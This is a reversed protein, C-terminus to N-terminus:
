EFRLILSVKPLLQIYHSKFLPFYRMNWQIKFTMCDKGTKFEVAVLNQHRDNGQLSLSFWKDNKLIMPELGDVDAFPFDGIIKSINVNTDIKIFSTKKRQSFFTQFHLYNTKSM